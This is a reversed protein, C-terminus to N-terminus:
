RRAGTLTTLNSTTQFAGFCQGITDCVGTAAVLPRFDLLPSGWTKTFEVQKNRWGREPEIPWSSVRLSNALGTRKAALGKRQAAKRLSRWLRRQAIGLELVMAM